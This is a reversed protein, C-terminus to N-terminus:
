TADEVASPPSFPNTKDSAPGHIAEFARHFDEARPMSRGDDHSVLVAETLLRKLERANGGTATHLERIHRPNDRRIGLEIGAQESLAKAFSLLMGAWNADAAVFNEMTMRVQLRSSLEPSAERLADVREDGVLLLAVRTADQLEVLFDILRESAGRSRLVGTRSGASSTLMSHASTVILLRTGKAQIQEIALDRRMELQTDSGRYFPYGYRRLVRSVFAGVTPPASMPIQMCGFGPAFLDSKPIRDRFFKCVTRRGSGPPGVLVGGQPMEFERALQFMRDMASLNEKVRQHQIIIGDVKGGARLSSPKYTAMRRQRDGADEPDLEDYGATAWYLEKAM